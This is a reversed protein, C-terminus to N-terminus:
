AVAVPSSLPFGICLDPTERLRFPSVALAVSDFGADDLAREDRLLLVVLVLLPCCEYNQLQESYKEAIGIHTFLELLAM